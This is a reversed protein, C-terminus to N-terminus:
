FLSLHALNGSPIIQFRPQQLPFQNSRTPDDMVDTSFPIPISYRAMTDIQDSEAIPYGPNEM